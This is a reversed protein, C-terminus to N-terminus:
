SPRTCQSFTMIAINGHSGYNHHHFVSYQFVVRLTLRPQINTCHDEQYEFRTTKRPEIIRSIILPSHFSNGPRCLSSISRISFGYCMLYGHLTSRESFPETKVPVVAGAKNQHLHRKSSSKGEFILINTVSGTVRSCM